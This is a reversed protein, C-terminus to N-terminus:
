THPEKNTLYNARGTNCDLDIDEELQVENVLAFSSFSRASDISRDDLEGITLLHAADAWPFHPRVSVRDHVRPTDM